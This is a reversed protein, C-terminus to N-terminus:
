KRLEGMVEILQDLQAQALERQRKELQLIRDDHERMMVDGESRERATTISAAIEALRIERVVKAIVWVAGYFACYAGWVASIFKILSLLAEYQINTV